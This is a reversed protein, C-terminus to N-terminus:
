KKDIITTWKKNSSDYQTIEVEGSEYRFIVLDEGAFLLTKPNEKFIVGAVQLTTKKEYM